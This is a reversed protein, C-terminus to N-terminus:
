KALELSFHRFPVGMFEEPEDITAGLRRLWQVSALFRADCHGDIRRYRALVERLMRRSGEWFTRRQAEIVPTTFMWAIVGESAVLNKRVFGVMCAPAGDVEWVITEVSRDISEQIVHALGRGGDAALIKFAREERLRAALAEADGPLAARVIPQPRM